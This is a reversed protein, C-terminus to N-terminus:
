LIKSYKLREPLNYRFVFDNDDKLSEYKNRRLKPQVAKEKKIIQDVTYGNRWKRIFTYKNVGYMESLATATYTKGKYEIKLKKPM